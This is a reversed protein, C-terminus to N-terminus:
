VPQAELVVEDRFAKSLFLPTSWTWQFRGPLAELEVQICAVDLLSTDPFPEVLLDLDSGDSHDGRVVSGFSRPNFARHSLVIQRM